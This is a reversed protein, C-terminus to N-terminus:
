ASTASRGLVADYFQPAKALDNTGVAVHTFIAM